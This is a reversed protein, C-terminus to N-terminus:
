QQENNPILESFNPILQYPNDVIQEYLEQPIYLIRTLIDNSVDTPIGGVLVYASYYQVLDSRSPFYKIFTERWYVEQQGSYEIWSKSKERKENLDFTRVYDSLSALNCVSALLGTNISAGVDRSLTCVRDFVKPPLMAESKQSNFSFLKEINKTRFTGSKTTLRSFILLGSYSNLGLRPLLHEIVIRYVEVINVMSFDISISNGEDTAKNDQVLNKSILNYAVGVGASEFVDRALMLRDTRGALAEFLKIGNVFFVARINALACLRIINILVTQAAAMIVTSNSKIRDMTESYKKPMFSLLEDRDNETMNLFVHSDSTIQSTIAAMKEDLAKLHMNNSAIWSDVKSNQLNYDFSNYTMEDFNTNSYLAWLRLLHNFTEEAGEEDLKNVMSNFHDQFTTNFDTSIANTYSSM